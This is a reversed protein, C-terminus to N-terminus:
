HLTQGASPFLEDIISAGFRYEHNCIDDRIIIVGHEALMSLVEDRGLSSLMGRVKDEDRPCHYTVPYPDFLRLTEEAFLRRLLTAAPLLLENPRLTAALKQIRNWGDEDPNERKRAPLTQLLLGAAHLGDAFLWLRAPNQASQGLFHEFIEAISAGSLPVYSQYPMDTMASQLSFLLNGDGLLEPASIGTVEDACRAMGRLNLQRDRDECDVVLLSVEGQGQAQFTLRGPTKLSSGILVAVAVMEGLLAQVQPAYDRGHQMDQWVGSLNVLAGRIDLDDFVFSIVSNEHTTM